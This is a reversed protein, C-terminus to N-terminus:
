PSQLESTHEESRPIAIGEGIGTTGEEERALVGKKYAERDYLNGSEEMLHTMYDIAEAKSGVSANVDIARIDLLESIRM